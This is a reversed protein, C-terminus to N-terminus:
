VDASLFFSYSNSQGLSRTVAKEENKKFSIRITTIGDRSWLQMSESLCICRKGAELALCAM